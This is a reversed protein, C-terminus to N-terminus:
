KRGLRGGKSLANPGYKQILDAPSANSVTKSKSANTGFKWTVDAPNANSVTKSKSANPGFKWTVDTPSAISSTQLQSGVSHSKFANKFISTTTQASASLALAAICALLVLKKTM